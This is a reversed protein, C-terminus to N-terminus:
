QEEFRYSLIPQFPAPEMNVHRENDEFLQGTFIKAGGGSLHTEDAFAKPSIDFDSAFFSGIVRTPGLEQNLKEIFVTDYHPKSAYMETFYKHKPTLVLVFVAGTSEVDEKLRRLYRIQVDSPGFIDLDDYITTSFGDSELPMVKKASLPKHGLGRQTPNSGQKVYNGDDSM